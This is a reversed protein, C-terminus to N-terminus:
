TVNKEIDIDKIVYFSYHSRPKSRGEHLEVVQKNDETDLEISVLIDGTDKNVFAYKELKRGGYTHFKRRLYLINEQDKFQKLEACGSSDGVKTPPDLDVLFFVVPKDIERRPENMEM